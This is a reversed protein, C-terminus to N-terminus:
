ISMRHGALLVRANSQPIALPPDWAFDPLLRGTEGIQASSILLGLRGAPRLLQAAVPLVEAFREVARLTVLDFRDEIAQARANVVRVEALKLARIAESLFAAKKTQSEILSLRVHPRVMKLPLGPFGAGSGLDAVDVAVDDALLHRAAFISEGFHRTVIAEPDCVATLNIRQNWRLLLDLYTFLQALQEAPLSEEELFPALLGAIRLADM